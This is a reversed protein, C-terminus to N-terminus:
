FAFCSERHSSGGLKLVTKLLIFIVTGIRLAEGHSCQGLGRFQCLMFKSNFAKLNYMFM